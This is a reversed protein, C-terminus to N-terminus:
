VHLIFTDGVALDLVEDAYDGNVAIEVLGNANAYWFAAGPAVDSFTEARPIRYGHISLVASPSMTHARTGSIGNGFADIYVIRPMDMPIEPRPDTVPKCGIGEPREGAALMGAVPAFLDRGHFTPTLREPRWEVEWRRTGPDHQAEVDLLGNDPGVFWRKRSYQVLPKRSGGVGPDVVCMFVTDEPFHAVYAPLLYAAALPDFPALDSVLDIVPVGPAERHLVAKM